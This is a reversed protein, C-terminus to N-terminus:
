TDIRWLWLASLGIYLYLFQSLWTPISSEDDFDFRNSIEFVQANKEDYVHLNLHQLFLHACVLFGLFGILIWLLRKSLPSRMM